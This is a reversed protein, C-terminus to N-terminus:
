DFLSLPFPGYTGNIIDVEPDSAHFSVLVGRSAGPYDDLYWAGNLTNFKLYVPGQRNELDLNVPRSLAAVYAAIAAQALPLNDACVGLTQYDSLENFLLLAERVESAETAALTPPTELCSFRALQKRIAPLDVIGPNMSAM